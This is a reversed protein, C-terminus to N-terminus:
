KGAEPTISSATIVAGSDSGKRTTFQESGGVTGKVVVTQGAYKEAESQPNLIYVKKDAFNFFAYKAHDDKVCKLTCEKTPPMSVRNFGCYTDTVYGKLTQAEDNAASLSLAGAIMAAAVAIVLRKTM